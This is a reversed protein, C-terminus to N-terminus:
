RNMRVFPDVHNMSGYVQAAAAKCGGRCMEKLGPECDECEQPWTTRFSEVYPHHYLDRFRDWKINGLIVPSHECIRINGVPDIVFASLEGALPCWGFNVHNFKRVDVVCPEIVLDACVRLSYKVALEDLTHLNEEIMASTPVLEEAFRLNAAGVNMRNYLLENAGLVMALRATAHLDMWNQRTAVFVVSLHGGSIHVNMMGEVVADWAGSRGVLRDHVERRCSLLPVEYMGGAMTAEVREETLLTGNTVLLTKMGRSRIFAIIEPLDSRLMPEGGSLAIAAVPMENQLKAITEKVERTSMEGPCEREYAFEPSRWVNYCYGCNNNCCRTLELVFAKPLSLSERNSKDADNTDM